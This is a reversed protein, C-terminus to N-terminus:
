IKGHSARTPPVTPTLERSQMPTSRKKRIEAAFMPGFRNWWARVTEYCIDIGREHLIEEVQRLPAPNESTILSPKNYRKKKKVM